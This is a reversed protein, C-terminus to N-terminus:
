FLNSNRECVCGKDAFNNQLLVIPVLLFFVSMKLPSMLLLITNYFQYYYHISLLPTLLVAINSAERTRNFEGSFYAQGIKWLDPFVETMVETLEELFIVKQPTNDRWGAFMMIVLSM